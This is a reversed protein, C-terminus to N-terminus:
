LQAVPEGTQQAHGFHANYTAIVEGAISVAIEMPLKGKVEALGLPCRMRQIVDAPLGRARLRHDFRARKSQSGILGYYAFDGRALIAASLELDLQHNHTMVIFYSGAPMREVEEVVEDNVIREVGTPLPQPFES